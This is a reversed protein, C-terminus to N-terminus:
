PSATDEGGRFTSTATSHHRSARHDSRRSISIRLNLRRVVPQVDAHVQSSLGHPAENAVIAKILSYTIGYGIALLFAAIGYLVVNGDLGLFIASGATM